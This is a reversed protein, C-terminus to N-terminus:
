EVARSGRADRVLRVVHDVRGHFADDQSAVFVQRFGAERQAERIAEALRARREPDLHVTPEDFVCFSAGAFDRAMAMQIALAASMQEGGSLTRFPREGEPTKVTVEYAGRWALRAPERHLAAFVANARSSIAELLRSSVRPGVERLIRWADDVLAAFRELRASEARVREREAVRRGREAVAADLKAVERSLSERERKLSAADGIAKRHLAATEAHRRADYLAALAARDRERDELRISAREARVRDFRRRQEAQERARLAAVSAAREAKEAADKRTRAGALKEEIAAIKRAFVEPAVRDCSERLLPCVSGKAERRADNEARLAAALAQVDGAAALLERKRDDVTAALAAVSDADALARELEGAEGDLRARAVRLQDIEVSLHDLKAKSQDMAAVLAGLRELEAEASFLAGGSAELSARALALDGPASASDELSQDLRAIAAHHAGLEAPLRRNKLLALPGDSVRRYGDVAIVPDFITKRQLDTMKFVATFQGQAVGIINEYVNALQAADRLRFIRALFAKVDAEREAVALGDDAVVSWAPRSGFRRVIDYAHGDDALVRVRIEGTKEGRRVFDAIPRCPEADFLAYGISEMVTSKGAGNAGSLFNLGDEFDIAPSDAAYSKVNSLRIRLIKM